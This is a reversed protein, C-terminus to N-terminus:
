SSYICRLKLDLPFRLFEDTSTRVPRSGAFGQIKSHPISDFYGKLVLPMRPKIRAELYGGPDVNAMQVVRHHVTPIRLPMQKRNAKSHVGRQVAQPGQGTKQRLQSVNEPLEPEKARGTRGKAIGSDGHISENM